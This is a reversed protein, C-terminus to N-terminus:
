MRGFTNEIERTSEGVWNAAKTSGLKFGSNAMLSGGWFM